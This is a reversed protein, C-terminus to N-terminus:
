YMQSVRNLSLEPWGNERGRGIVEEPDEDTYYSAVSFSWDVLEIGYLDAISQAEELTEVAAILPCEENIKGIETHPLQIDLENVNDKRCGTFVGVAAVLALGAILFKSM